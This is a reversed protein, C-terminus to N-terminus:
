GGFLGHFISSHMTARQADLMADFRLDQGDHLRYLVRLAPPLRCGLEAETRDLADETAGERFAVAHM